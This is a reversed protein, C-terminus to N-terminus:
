DTESYRAQNSSPCTDIPNVHKLDLCSLWPLSRKLNLQLSDIKCTITNVTPHQKSNPM